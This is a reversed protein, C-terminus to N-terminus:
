PGGAQRRGRLLHMDSASWGVDIRDGVASVASERRGPWRLLLEVGPALAVRYKVSGGLYLVERVIGQYRNELPGNLDTPQPLEPRLILLVEDAIMCRDDARAVVTFDSGVLVRAKGQELAVIRGWWQSSEGVFDAIFANGPSEYLDRPAGIQLICGDRMVAIRDSIFLAEEQDHTIFITTLGLRSQLRKLELQMTERLKRDLAGFPEDLLLLKPEFVIARALAVRQQQGGSLQSPYRREYGDLAVLELASRVRRAITDRPIRRMKLPFAVNGAVTMHPFLAYNQFVMGIDRRAPALDTIDAGNLVVSGTDLPEFGAVAKLLTTKGSGSPGLITLLEAAEVDLDVGDLAAVTGYRKVLGRLALASLRAPGAESV